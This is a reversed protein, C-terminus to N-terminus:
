GETAEKSYNNSGIRHIEALAASDGEARWGGEKIGSPTEDNAYGPPCYSSTRQVKDFM